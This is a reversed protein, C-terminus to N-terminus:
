HGPGGQMETGEGERMRSDFRFSNLNYSVALTIVRPESHWTSSTYFGAGESVSKYTGRGLLNGVRLTISLARNLLSQKVAVDTDFWGGETGQSTVTPASYNGSVQMQTGFPM